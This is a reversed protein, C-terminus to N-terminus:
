QQKPLLVHTVSVLVARPLTINRNLRPITCSGPSIEEPIGCPTSLTCDGGPVNDGLSSQYKPAFVTAHDWWCDHLNKLHNTGALKFHKCSCSELSGWASKKSVKKSRGIIQPSFRWPAIVEIIFIDLINFGLQGRGKVLVPQFIFVM